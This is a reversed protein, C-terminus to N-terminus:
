GNWGYVSFQWLSIGWPRAPKEVFLRLRSFYQTECSTYNRNANINANVDRDPDLDTSIYITHVIHLSMKRKVGPSRGSEKVQRRYEQSPDMGDYLICWDEDDGEESEYNKRVSNNANTGEIRYDSAYATEWDLIVKSIRVKGGNDNNNGNGSDFDLVVFHQGPIATGGMDSAAQWRDKLWNSGPMKQIVVDIPGLNGRVDATVSLPSLLIPVPMKQQARLTRLPSEKPSSLSSTGTRDDSGVLLIFYLAGSIWIMALTFVAVDM